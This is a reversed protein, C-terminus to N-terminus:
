QGKSRPIQSGPPPEPSPAAKGKGVAIARRAAAIDGPRPQPAGHVAAAPAFCAALFVPQHDSGFSPLVRYEGFTFEETVLAHDLPWRRVLAGAKWTPFWGRGVRPDNLQAIRALRRVVPSWPVANLDGALIQPGEEAAMRLATEMLIADREASSQGVTPPRPHVGYFRVTPGAPLEIGAVVVPDRAHAMFLVKSDTLPYRSLLAIGYYNQTVHYVQYPYRAHLRQLEEHWWDDVELVLVAEADTRRILEFLEAANENTMQVNAALVRLERGEPCRGSAAVQHGVLPSWPILVGALYAATAAAIGSTLLGAPRGRDPLLVSLVFVGALALLIEVRPFELFRIWWVNTDIAPLVGSVSLGVALAGVLTRM